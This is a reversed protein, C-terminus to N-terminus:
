EEAPAVSVEETAKQKKTKRTKKAKSEKKPENLEGNLIRIAHEVDEDTLGNVPQVWHPVIGCEEFDGFAEDDLVVWETVIDDNKNLWEQIEHGRNAGNRGLDPTCGVSRLHCKGLKNSLYKTFDQLDQHDKNYGLRWTSSLIIAADTADVIAKLKRVLAGDIGRVDNCRAKTSENNIVDDVDLFIVKM